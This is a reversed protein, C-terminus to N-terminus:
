ESGGSAWGRGETDAGIRQLPSGHTTRHRRGVWELSWAGSFQQLSCKVLVALCACCQKHVGRIADKNSESYLTDAWQGELGQFTQDM